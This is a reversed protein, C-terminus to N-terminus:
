IYEAITKDLEGSEMKMVSIIHKIEGNEMKDTEENIKEIGVSINDAIKELKVVNFLDGDSSDDFCDKTENIFTHLKKIEGMITENSNEKLEENMVRELELLHKEIEGINKKLEKEEEIEGHCDNSKVNEHNM